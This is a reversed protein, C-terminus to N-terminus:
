SARSNRVRAVLGVGPRAIREGLPAAGVCHDPVHEARDATLPILVPAPPPYRDQRERLKAASDPGGLHATMRADGMLWELLALDGSGWARPDGDRESPVVLM